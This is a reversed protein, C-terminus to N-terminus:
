PGTSRTVDINYTIKRFRDNQGNEDLTMALVQVTHRGTEDFEVTIDPETSIFQGDVTWAYQDFGDPSELQIESNVAVQHDVAPESVVQVLDTEDVVIENNKSETYRVVYSGEDMFTHTFTHPGSGSAAEVGNVYWTYTHDPPAVMPVSLQNGAYQSEPLDFRVNHRDATTFFGLELKVEEVTKGTRAAIKELANPITELPAQMPIEVRHEPTELFLTYKGTELQDTPTVAIAGDTRKVDVMYDYDHENIMLKYAGMDEAPLPQGNRTLNVVVTQNLSQFVIPNPSFEVHEAHAPIAMGAALVAVGLFWIGRQAATAHRANM